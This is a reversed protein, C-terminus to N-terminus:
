NVKRPYNDNKKEKKQFTIAINSREIIEVQWLNYKMDSNNM